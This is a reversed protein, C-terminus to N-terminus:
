EHSPPLVEDAMPALSASFPPGNISSPPLNLRFDGGRLMTAAVGAMIPQAQVHLYRYVEDSRWRGILRLRDAGIGGCLLAMAGGARTCRASFDNADLDPLLGVAQRILATVDSALVFQWCATPTPRFANIPTTPLAGAARLQLIRRVIAQVPCLTPHGSRGHGITEGRVGNKQTTFTLTVFTSALLESSLCTLPNLRRHGIMIGVDQFRFLDDATTRPAGSYEGPRLLFFYALLLCDGTTAVRSGSPQALAFTHAHRMLSLPMPKVRAPPPDVRKWAQFLAHLRVDVVGFANLRPDTAGVRTFAQAM